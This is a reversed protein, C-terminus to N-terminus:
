VIWRTFGPLRPVVSGDPLTIPAGRAHPDDLSAVFAAADAAIAALHARAIREGDVNSPLYGCDLAARYAPLRVLDPVAL